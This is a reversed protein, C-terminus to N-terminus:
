KNNGSCLVVVWGHVHAWYAVQGLTVSKGTGHKGYIIYRVVPKDLYATHQLCNVIDLYPRRVM